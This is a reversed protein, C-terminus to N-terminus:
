RGTPAGAPAGSCNALAAFAAAFGRSPAQFRRGKPMVLRLTASARAREIMRDLVPSPALVSHMLLLEPIDPARRAGRIPITNSIVPSGAEPLWAIRLRDTGPEPVPTVPDRVGVYLVLLDRPGRVIDLRMLDREWLGVRILCNRARRDRVLLWDQHRSVVTENSTQANAPTPAPALVPALGALLCGLLVARAALPLRM